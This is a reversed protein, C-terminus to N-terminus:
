DNNTLAEKDFINQAKLYQVGKRLKNLEEELHERDNMTATLKIGGGTVIYVNPEVRVAYIRLWSKTKVGYAKTKLLEVCYSDTNNLPKFLSDLDPKNGNKVNECSELIWDTFEQAEERTESVAKEVSMFKGWFGDLLDSEQREFFDKLFSVDHWCDFLRELEDAEENDYKFAYLYNAFITVIEM